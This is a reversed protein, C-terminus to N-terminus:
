YRLKKCVLISVIIAAAAFTIALVIGVIGVASIVTHEGLVDFCIFIINLM